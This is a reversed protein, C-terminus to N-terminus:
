KNGARKKWDASIKAKEESSIKATKTQVNQTNGIVNKLNPPPLKDCIEQLKLAVMSYNGAMVIDTAHQLALNKYETILRGLEGRDKCNRHKSVEAEVNLLM